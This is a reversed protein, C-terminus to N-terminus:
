VLPSHPLVQKFLNKFNKSLQKYKILPMAQLYYVLSTKENFFRTM